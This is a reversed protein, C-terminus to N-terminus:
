FKQPRVTFASGNYYYSKMAIGSGEDWIYYDTCSSVSERNAMATWYYGFEGTKDPVDPQMDYWRAGAKIFSHTGSARIVLIDAPNPVHYGPPCPDYMTKTRPTVRLTRDQERRAGKCWLAATEGSM